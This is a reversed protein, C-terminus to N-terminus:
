SGFGEGTGDFAPADMAPVPGGRTIPAGSASVGAYTNWKRDALEHITDCRRFGPEALGVRFRREVEGVDGGSLRLLETIAKADRGNFGYSKGRVDLFVAELREQLPRHRPDPTEGAKARKRRAPPALSPTKYGHETPEPNAPEPTGTQITAPAIASPTAACTAPSTAPGTAPPTAPEEAMWLIGAWKGFDVLTPSPAPSTADARRLSLAGLAALRRLSRRAVDVSVGLADALGQYRVLVQGRAIHIPRGSSSPVDSGEPKFEMWLMLAGLLRFQDPTLANLGLALM